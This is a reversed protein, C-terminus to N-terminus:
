CDYEDDSKSDDSDDKVKKPKDVLGLGGGNDTKQEEDDMM